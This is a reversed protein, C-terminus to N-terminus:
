GVKVDAGRFNGVLKVRGSNILESVATLIEDDTEAQDAIAAVLDLLTMSSEGSAEPRLLCELKRAPEPM